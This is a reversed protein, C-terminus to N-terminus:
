VLLAQFEAVADRRLWPHIERRKVPGHHALTHRLLRADYEIAFPHNQKTVRIFAECSADGVSAQKFLAQLDAGFQLSDCSCQFAGAEENRVDNAVRKSTDVGEDWNWSSELGAHVRLVELMVARRHMLDRYPGLQPAVASYIDFAANPAFVEDPASRGWNVLEQLFAEPARGRNGVRARTASFHTRARAPWAAQVAAGAALALVSRRRLSEREDRM